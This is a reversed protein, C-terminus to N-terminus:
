FGIFFHKLISDEEITVVIHKMECYGECFELTKSFTVNKEDIKKELDKNLCELCFEAM